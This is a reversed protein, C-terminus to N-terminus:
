HTINYAGVAIGSLFKELLSQAKAVTTNISTYLNQKEGDDVSAEEVSPEPVAPRVTVDLNNSKLVYTVNPKGPDVYTLAGDSGKGVYEFNKQVYAALDNYKGTTPDIIRADFKYGDAHTYSSTTDNQTETGGTVTVSCGCENQLDLIEAVTGARMNELHTAGPKSEWTSINANALISQV